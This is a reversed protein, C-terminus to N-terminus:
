ESVNAIIGSLRPLDERSKKSNHNTLDIKNGNKKM